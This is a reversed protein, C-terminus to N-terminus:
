QNVGDGLMFVLDDVDVDFDVHVPAGDKSDEEVIFFGGASVADDNEKSSSSSSSVMMGPTFAIFFGQDAHVDITEMRTPHDDDRYEEGGATKAKEEKTKKVYSHFHELQEGNRVLDLVTDYVRTPDDGRVRLLPKELHPELERSLAVAFADTAERAVSRFGDLNKRFSRCSASKVDHDNGRLKLPGDSATTATALSRRVTGDPFRQVAISDDDDDDTHDAICPHLDSLVEKRLASFGGPLDTLSVIGSSGSLADLLSSRGGVLDEYRIRTPTFSSSSAAEANNVVALLAATSFASSFSFSVM